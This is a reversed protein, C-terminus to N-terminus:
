LTRSTAYRNVKLYFYLKLAVLRRSTIRLGTSKLKYTNASLVTSFALSCAFSPNFITEYITATTHM